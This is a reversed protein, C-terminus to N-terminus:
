AGLICTRRSLGPGPVQAPASSVWRALAHDGSDWVHMAAARSARPGPAPTPTHWAYPTVGSFLHQWSQTGPVGVQTAVQGPRHVQQDGCSHHPLSALLMAARSLLAPVRSLRRSLNIPSCRSWPEPLDLAGPVRPVGAGAVGAAPGAHGQSPGDEQQGRWCAGPAPLLPHATWAQAGGGLPQPLVPETNRHSPGGRGPLALRRRGHPKGAALFDSTRPM